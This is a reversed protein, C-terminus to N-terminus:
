AALLVALEERNAFPQPDADPAHAPLVEGEWVEGDHEFKKSHVVWQFAPLAREDLRAVHLPYEMDALIRQVMALEPEDSDSRVIGSEPNYVIGYGVFTTRMRERRKAEVRTIAIVVGVVVAWWIIAIVLDLPSDVNSFGLAYWAWLLAGAALAAIAAVIWNSTRM